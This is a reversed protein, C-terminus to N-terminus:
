TAHKAHLTAFPPCYCRSLRMATTMATAGEQPVLLTLQTVPRRYNSPKALRRLTRPVTGWELPDHADAGRGGM